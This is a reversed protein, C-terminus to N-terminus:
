IRAEKELITKELENQYQNLAREIIEDIKITISNIVSEKYASIQKLCNDLILSSVEDRSWSLTNIAIPVILVALIVGGTMASISILTAAEAGILM